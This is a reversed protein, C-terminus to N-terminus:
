TPDRGLYQLPHWGRPSQDYGLLQDRTLTWRLPTAVPIFNIKAQLKAEAEGLLRKREGRDAAMRAAAVLDDASQDCIATATCSLATLYYAPGSTDAVRDILIMDYQQDATVREARLGIAALDNRIMAFFIRSGPGRPLAIRLPRVESNAATWRAIVQKAQAKRQDIRLQTWTPRELEARSPMAEPVITLAERWAVIDFSTLLKPRDIAMNIAGRNDTDSLFPGSGTILLGFLGPVPDFNAQGGSVKAVDLLPLHHFRGGTVMDSHGANYRALALAPKNVRVSVWNDSLLLDGKKDYVRNRLQLVTGYAKSRMPGSGVAKKLIGFEPQALLELLYPMPARLRIEIVKGTMPVVRDIVALEPGFRGMRLENIRLAFIKAVEDSSIEKGDNWRAKNLRFIYSMGDDTVIWRAALAPIIQGKANFSVLGQTTAARILGSGESLPVTVVSLPKPQDEIVDVRLRSNDIGKSCASLALIGFLCCLLRSRM